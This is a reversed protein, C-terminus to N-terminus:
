RGRRLERVFAQGAECAERDGPAPYAAIERLDKCLREQKGLRDCTRRALDECPQACSLAVLAVATLLSWSRCRRIM